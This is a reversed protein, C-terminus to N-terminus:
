QQARRKKSKRKVPQEAQRDFNKFQHDFNMDISVQTPTWDNGNCGLILSQRRTTVIVVAHTAPPVQAAVEGTLHAAGDGFYEYHARYLKQFKMAEIMQKVNGCKELSESPPYSVQGSFLQDQTPTQATAATAFALVIAIIMAGTAIRYTISTEQPCPKIGALALSRAQEGYWTDDLCPAIGDGTGTPLHDNHRVHGEVGGCSSNIRDIIAACEIANQQFSARIPSSQTVQREGITQQPPSSRHHGCDPHRHQCRVDRDRVVPVLRSNFHQDYDNGREKSHTPLM